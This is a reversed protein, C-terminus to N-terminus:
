SKIHFKFRRYDPQFYNGFIDIHHHKLLEVTTLTHNITGLSNPAVVIVPINWKKILDIVLTSEDLPVCIGGIGEVLLIDNKEMLNSYAKEIKTWDISEGSKLLASYPAVPQKM